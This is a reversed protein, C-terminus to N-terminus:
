VNDNNKVQGINGDDALVGQAYSYTPQAAMTSGGGGSTSLSGESGTIAMGATSQGSPLHVRFTEQDSDSEDNWTYTGYDNYGVTTSDESELDATVWEDEKIDAGSSDKPGTYMTSITGAGNSVDPTFVYAHEEDNDDQPQIMAVSPGVTATNDTANVDQDNSVGLTVESAGTSVNLVYDLQGASELEVVTSKNLELGTSDGDVFVDTGVASDLDVRLDSSSTTSPLQLMDTSNFAAEFATESWTIDETFSVASGSQTYLNPYAQVSSASARNFAVKNNTFTVDFDMGEVSESTLTYSPVNSYRATSNSESDTDSIGTEEITVTDGTVVNRLSVSVQADSYSNDVETTLSTVKYMSAEENNNLVVYNDESLLQGEYTAIPEGTDAALGLSSADNNAFTIDKSGSDGQPNISVTAEGDENAQVEVQGAPNEKVNGSLGGYHFQLGFIPTTYSGGAPVFNSDSDAAGFHFTMSDTQNFSTPTNVTVGDVTEGNKEVDGDQQIVLENSGQSFAVIGQGDPGTRYIDSVRINGSPGVSEGDDVNETQGGVTVTASNGDSSVYTAKLTVEQGNVTVTTSSGTNVEVRNSSGYLVLEDNTSEDSFTYDQGFLTIEQGDEIYEDANASMQDGDDTGTFDVTDSFEVTASMLNNGSTPNTPNEVSLRPDDQNGVSEFQQNQSGVTIEQEVEVTEDDGSSFETTGLMSLDSSDLSTKEADTQDNLFLNSNQRNLTAGNQASWTGAVGGPVSVSEEGFANMGLSGAIEVAGVVDTVKADSGLVISTQVMGDETVFPQPYDGLSMSSSGSSGSQAAAFAAGGTLTAGVLLASGALTSVNDTVKNTLKKISKM